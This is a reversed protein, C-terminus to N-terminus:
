HQQFTQELISTTAIHADWENIAVVKTGFPRM